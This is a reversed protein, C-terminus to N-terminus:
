LKKGKDEFNLTGLYKKSAEDIDGVFQTFEAVASPVGRIGGKVIDQVYNGFGWEEGEPATETKQEETTKTPPINANDGMSDRLEVPPSQTFFADDEETTQVGRLTPAPDSTNINPSSVGSSVFADDEPTTTLQNM